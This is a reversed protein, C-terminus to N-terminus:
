DLLSLIVFALIILFIVYWGNGSDPDKEIKIKIGM